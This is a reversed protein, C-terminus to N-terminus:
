RLVWEGSEIPGYTEGFLYVCATRLIFGFEHENWRVVAVRDSGQSPNSENVADERKPPRRKSM